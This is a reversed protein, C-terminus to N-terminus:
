IVHYLNHPRSEAFFGGLKQLCTAAMNLELLIGLAM